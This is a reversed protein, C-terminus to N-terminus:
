SSSFSRQRTPFSTCFMILSYYISFCKPQESCVNIVVMVLCLCLPWNASAGFFDDFVFRLLNIATSAVNNSQPIVDTFHLAYVFFCDSSTMFYTDLIGMFCVIGIIVTVLTCIHCVLFLHGAFIESM